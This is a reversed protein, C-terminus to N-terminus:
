FVILDIADYSTLEIDSNNFISIFAPSLSQDLNFDASRTGRRYGPQRNVAPIYTLSSIRLKRVLILKPVFVVSVNKQGWSVLYFRQRVRGWFFM